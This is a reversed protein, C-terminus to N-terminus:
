RKPPVNLADHTAGICKNMVVILGATKARAATEENSIGVQLWLAKAGIKAAEDALPPTDEGRRFVDVIDVRESIDALSPYAKQGLVETERPNVPIVHYGAALLRKMIEHSPKEPHSSAGVMAITSAETLLQKLDENTPNIHPM